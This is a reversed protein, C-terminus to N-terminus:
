APAPCYARATSAHIAYALFRPSIVDRNPRARFVHNQHVCPTIPADWIWGRGLHEANGGEILLVDGDELAFREREKTTVEIPKIERLDLFGSQVNAARIFPVPDLPDNTKRGKTIGTRIDSVKALTRLEWTEPLQEWRDGTALLDETVSALLSWRAESETRQTDALTALSAAYETIRAQEALPPLDIDFDLFDDVTRAVVGARLV